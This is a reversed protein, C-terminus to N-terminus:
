VEQYLRIKFDNQYADVVRTAVSRTVRLNFTQKLHEFQEALGRMRGDYDMYLLQKGKLLEEYEEPQSPFGLVKLNDEDFGFGIIIIKKANQILSKYKDKEAKFAGTLRSILKEGL